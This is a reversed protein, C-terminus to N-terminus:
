IDELTFPVKGDVRERGWSTGLFDNVAKYFIMGDLIGDQEVLEINKDPMFALKKMADYVDTDYVRM